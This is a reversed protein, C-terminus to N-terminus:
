VSPMTGGLSGAFTHWSSSVNRFTSKMAGGADMKQSEVVHNFGDYTYKEQTSGNSSM